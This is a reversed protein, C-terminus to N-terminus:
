ELVKEHRYAVALEQVKAHRDALYNGILAKDHNDILMVNWNDGVEEVVEEENHNSDDNEKEKSDEVVEDRSGSVDVKSNEVVVVINDDEMDLEKKGVDM